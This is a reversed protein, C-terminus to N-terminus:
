GSRLQAAGSEHGMVEGYWTPLWCSAFLADLLQNLMLGKGFGRDRSISRLRQYHCLGPTHFPTMRDMFANLRGGSTHLSTRWCFRTDSISVIREPRVYPRGHFCRARRSEARRNRSIDPLQACEFVNRATLLQYCLINVQIILCHAWFYIPTFVLQTCGRSCGM